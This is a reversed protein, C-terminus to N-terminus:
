GASKNPVPSETRYGGQTRSLRQKSSTRAQNVARVAGLLSIEGAACGDHGVFFCFQLFAMALFSLSGLDTDHFKASSVVETKERLLCIIGADSIFMFLNLLSPGDPSNPPM